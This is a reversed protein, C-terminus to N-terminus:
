DSCGVWFKIEACCCCANRAVWSRSIYFCFCISSRCTFNWFIRSSISFCGFSRLEKLCCYSGRARMLFIIFDSSSTRIIDLSAGMRKASAQWINMV